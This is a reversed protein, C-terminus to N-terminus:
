QLERRIVALRPGAPIVTLTAHSSLPTGRVGGDVEVILDTAAFSTAAALAAYEARFDLRASSPMLSGWEELSSIRRRSDRRAGLVQLASAGVGPLAAVAAMPATNPDLRGDGRVTLLHRLRVVTSDDFGAILGLEDVSGLAGNRPLLRGNSAYWSREAGDRRTVDDPDRWDLLADSLAPNAIVRTLADSSASNVNLLSHPDEINVTCWAGQGIDTTDVGTITTDAAYRALVIEACAERAWATRTLLLRNRSTYGVTRVLAISTVGVAALIAVLWLVVLLAIGRRNM